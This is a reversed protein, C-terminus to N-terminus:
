ALRMGKTMLASEIGASCVGSDKWQYSITARSSDEREVRIESVGPLTTLVVVAQAGILCSGQASRDRKVTIVARM